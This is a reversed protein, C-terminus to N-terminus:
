KTLCGNGGEVPPPNALASDTSSINGGVSYVSSHQINNDMDPLQQSFDAPSLPSGGRLIRKKNTKRKKNSKRRVRQKKGKRSYKLKRKITKLLQRRKRSLIKKKSKRKRRLAGGIHTHVGVGQSSPM